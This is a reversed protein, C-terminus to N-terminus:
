LRRWVWQWRLWTRNDIYAFTHSCRRSVYRYVLYNITYPTHITKYCNLYKATHWTVETTAQVWAVIGHIDTIPVSRQRGWNYYLTSLSVTQIRTLPLSQGYSIRTLSSYNPFYNPNKKGTKDLSFHSLISPPNTALYVHIYIHRNIIM